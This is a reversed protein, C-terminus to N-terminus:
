KGTIKIETRRNKAKNEATTNPLLPKSDGYGKFSLRNAVIGAKVAYDYVAKARNQSLLQNAKKNGDSDTHGGIEIKITKNKFEQAFFNKVIRDELSHFSIVALRGQSSLLSVAQPLVKKINELKM